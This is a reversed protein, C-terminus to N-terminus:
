SKPAMGKIHPLTILKSLCCIVFMSLRILNVLGEGWIRWYKESSWWMSLFKRVKQKLPTLTSIERRSFYDQFFTKMGQEVRDLAKIRQCNVYILAEWGHVSAHLISYMLWLYTLINIGQASLATLHLWHVSLGLDIVEPHLSGKM